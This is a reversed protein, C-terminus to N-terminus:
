ILGEVKGFQTRTGGRHQAAIVLLPPLQPLRQLQTTGLSERGQTGVLVDVRAEDIVGVQLAEVLDVPVVIWRM